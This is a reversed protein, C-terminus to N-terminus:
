SAGQVRLGGLDWHVAAGDGRQREEEENSADQDIGDNEVVAQDAEAVLVVAGPGVNIHQQLLAVVFNGVQDFAYFSVHLM